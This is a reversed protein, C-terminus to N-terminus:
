FFLWVSKEKERGGQGGRKTQRSHCLISATDSFGHNKQTLTNKGTFRRTLSFKVAAKIKHEAHPLIQVPCVIAFQRARAGGENRSFGDFHRKYIDNQRAIEPKHTM